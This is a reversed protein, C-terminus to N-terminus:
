DIHKVMEVSYDSFGLKNYLNKTETNALLVGIHVRKYGKSKINEIVQNLLLKGIGQGRYEKTVVIDSIYAYPIDFEIEKEVFWAIMGVVKNGDKAVLMEGHQSSISELLEKRYEKANSLKTTKDTDFQNEHIQLEQILQDIVNLDEQSYPTIVISM